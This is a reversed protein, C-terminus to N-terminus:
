QVVRLGPGEELIFSFADCREFMGGDHRDVVKALMFLLREDHHAIHRAARQKVPQALRSAGAQGHGINCLNKRSDTLGEVKRMVFFDDVAIQFWAVDQEIIAAFGVKRVEADGLDDPGGHHATAQRHDTSWVVHGRLLCARSLLDRRLRVHICQTDRGEFQECPFQRELCFGGHRQQVHVHV